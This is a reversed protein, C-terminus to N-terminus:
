HSPGGTPNGRFPVPATVRYQLRFGVPGVVVTVPAPERRSWYLSTWADRAVDHLDLLNRQDRFLEFLATNRVSVSDIRDAAEARFTYWHMVPDGAEGSGTLTLDLREGGVDIDLKTNLYMLALSDGRPDDPSVADRGAVRGLATGLDDPFFRIRGRISRGEVDLSTYTVHVPHGPRQGPAPGGAPAVLLAATLLM